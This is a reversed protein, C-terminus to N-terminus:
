SLLQPKYKNTLSKCRYKNHLFLLVMSNANLEQLLLTILAPNLVISCNKSLNYRKVLFWISLNCFSASLIHNKALGYFIYAIRNDGQITYPQTCHWQFQDFETSKLINWNLHMHLHMVYMYLTYIYRTCTIEYFQFLARHLKSNIQNQHKTIQVFHAINAIKFM